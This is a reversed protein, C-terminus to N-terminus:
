TVWSKMTQALSIPDCRNVCKMVVYCLGFIRALCGELHCGQLPSISTSVSLKM